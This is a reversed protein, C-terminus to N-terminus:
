PRCGQANADLGCISVTHEKAWTTAWALFQPTPATSLWSWTNIDGRSNVGVLLRKNLPGVNEVFAGGGSDGYCVAAGGKTVTYLDDEPIQEIDASGHYLVGYSRDKGNEQLCGFGLLRIKGGKAVVRPDVAVYEYPTFTLKTDALCLAFDASTEGPYDPHHTCTVTGAAGPLKGVQGNKVCHAATLVVKEGVVTATCGGASTRFTLTAPWKTPDAIEGGIIEGGVGGPALNRSLEFQEEAHVASAPAIAIFAVMLMMWLEFSKETM